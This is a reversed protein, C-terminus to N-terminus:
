MDVPELPKFKHNLKDYIDISCFGPDFLGAVNMHYVGKIRVRVAKDYKALRQLFMPDRHDDDIWPCVTTRTIPEGSKPLIWYYLAQGICHSIGLWCGLREPANNPFDGSDECYWVPQKWDFEIWESIDPTDGTVM